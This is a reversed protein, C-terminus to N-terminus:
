LSLWVAVVVLSHNYHQCIHGTLLSCSCYFFFTGIYKIYHTTNKQFVVM